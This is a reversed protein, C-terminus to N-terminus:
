ILWERYKEGSILTAMNLKQRLAQLIKEDITGPAVLDVYTVSHKLGDRHARDESQMRLELDHSNSFYVVLNANVWTNGRGGASQTAIMFRCNPNGLFQREEEGRSTKNGGHFQAVSGEGYEEELRQAIKAIEKRYNSWIIVKGSHEDLLEMLSDIRNSKIDHEIGVDDVSHGCVVQHLRLLRTMVMTPTVHATASLQATSFLILDNYIRKQDDTLEVERRQYIKPPLDLCDEKLVRYSYPAIKAHLEEQNKFAVVVKVKRPKTKGDPGVKTGPAMITKMVTYRERFSYISRHGLIRLDLFEFQHFLDLPSKPTVLGTLIRRVNAHEKLKLVERTRQSDNRITTSEDVVVMTRRGEVTLFAECYQRAKITSSLAEINMVLVRPGNRKALLNDLRKQHTKSAGSIWAVIMSREFLDAPMHVKFQSPQEDSKDQDWNRYSGAPAIILLDDMTGASEREGWEAIIMASKGVGMEALVAFVKKGRTLDVYDSQHKRLKM